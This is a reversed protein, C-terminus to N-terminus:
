DSLARWSGIVNQRVGVKVLTCHQVANFDWNHTVQVGSICQHRPACCGSGFTLVPAVAALTVPAFSSLLGLSLPACYRPVFERLVALDADRNDWEVLQLGDAEEAGEAVSRSGQQERSRVATALAEQDPVAGDREAAPVGERSSAVDAAPDGAGSLVLRPPAEVTVGIPNCDGPDGPLDGDPVTESQDGPFLDGEPVTERQDGPLLDGEPVAEKQDGLRVDGKPATGKQDGRLGDGEPVEFGVTTPSSMADRMPTQQRPEMPDGPFGFQQDRSPLVCGQKAAGRSGASHQPKGELASSCGPEAPVALGRDGDYQRVEEDLANRSPDPSGATSHEDECHLSNLQATCDQLCPPWVQQYFALEVEGRIDEQIAVLAQNTLGNPLYARM